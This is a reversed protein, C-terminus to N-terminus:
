EPGRFFIDPRIMPQLAGETPIGVPIKPYRQSFHTLITRYAGMDAAVQLAEETTSHRKSIAQLSSLVATWIWPCEM